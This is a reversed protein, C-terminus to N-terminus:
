MRKKGQSVSYTCGLHQKNFILLDAVALCCVTFDVFIVCGIQRMVKKVYLQMGGPPKEGSGKLQYARDLFKM